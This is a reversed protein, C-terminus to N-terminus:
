SNNHIMDSICVTNMNKFQHYKDLIKKIYFRSVYPDRIYRNGAYYFGLANELGKYRIMLWRIHRVGAYINERADFVDDVDLVRATVPMLQMLGKAGQNSIAYAYFQSEVEIVAKILLPDIQYKEAASLIITDYKDKDPDGLSIISMQATQLPKEQESDTLMWEKIINNPFIYNIVPVDLRIFVYVLCLCLIYSVWKNILYRNHGINRKLKNISKKIRKKLIILLIYRFKETYLWVKYVFEISRSVASQIVPTYTHLTNINFKM